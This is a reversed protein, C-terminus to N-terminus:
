TLSYKISQDKFSPFFCAFETYLFDFTRETSWNDELGGYQWWRESKLLYSECKVKQLSSSILNSHGKIIVEEGLRDATDCGTLPFPM